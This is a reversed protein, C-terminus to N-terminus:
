QEKTGMLQNALGTIIGMVVSGFLAALFGNVKFGHIWGYGVLWFMLANIVVTFLGLTLCNLPITLLLVLPRILANVVALMVVALIAPVAGTVSIGIADIGLAHSLLATLYLAIASIILRTFLGKM